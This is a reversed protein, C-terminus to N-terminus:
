LGMITFVLPMTIVSLLTTLAVGKTAPEISKGDYQQALMVSMSGAPAALVVLCVGWLVHDSIVGKIAWMGIFPIVILRIACFLVMRWDSVLEKLKIHVFSAGIVMMSLPATLNSLMQIANVAMNAVPIRMLSIIFSLICALVGVNFIKSLSIKEKKAGMCIIGYTYILMNFPILFISAYMFASVGYIAALIPFGMFGINSFVLMVKYVGLEKKPFPFIPLLFEAILILILFVTAALVTASLIGATSITNKTLSGSIILAPNAINIVIWSISKCVKDDMIGKRATYYGLLMVFFFILMQKLLIM